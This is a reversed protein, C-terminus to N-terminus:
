GVAFLLLAPTSRMAGATGAPYYWAPKEWQTAGSQARRSRDVDRAAAARATSSCLMSVNRRLNHTHARARARNIRRRRGAAVPERRIRVALRRWPQDREVNTQQEHANGAHEEVSGAAAAAAAAAARKRAADAALRVREGVVKALVMLQSVRRAGHRAALHPKAGRLRARIRRVALARARANNSTATLRHRQHALALARARDASVARRLRRRRRRRRPSRISDTCARRM